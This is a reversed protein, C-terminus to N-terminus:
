YCAPAYFFLFAFIFPFCLQICISLWEILASFVYFAATLLRQQYTSHVDGLATRIETGLRRFLLIEKLERFVMSTTQQEVKSGARIREFIQQDESDIYMTMNELVELASGVNDKDSVKELVKDWDDTSSIKKLVNLRSETKPISIWSAEEGSEKEGPYILKEWEGKVRDSRRFKAWKNFLPVEYTLRPLCYRACNVLAHLCDHQDRYRRELMNLWTYLSYFHVKPEDCYMVTDALMEDMAQSLDEVESLHVKGVTKEVIENSMIPVISKEKQGEVIVKREPAKSFFRENLSPLNVYRRIVMEIIGAKLFRYESDYGEGKTFAEDIDKIFEIALSNLIIDWPDDYTYM